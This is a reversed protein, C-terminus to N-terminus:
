ARLTRLQWKNLKNCEVTHWSRSLIQAVEYESRM